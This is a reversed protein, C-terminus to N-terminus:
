WIAELQALYARLHIKRRKPYILQQWTTTFYQFFYQQNQLILFPQQYFEQSFTLILLWIAKITVRLIALTPCRSPFSLRTVNWHVKWHIFFFIFFFLKKNYQHPKCQDCTTEEQFYKIRSQSVCNLLPISACVPYKQGNINPLSADICNCSTLVFEQLCLRLSIHFYYVSWLLYDKTLISNIFINVL